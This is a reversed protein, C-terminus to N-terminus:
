TFRVVLRDEVPRYGLRPYIANSVPNDLDTFLVPIAGDDLVDRTAAATAASGYGRGRCGPPTYVPGVRASGAVVPRRAALSVVREDPGVWLRCGDGIARRAADLIDATGTGAEEAFALYWEHVLRDDDDTALRSRGPVTPPTLEDLRFLRQAMRAVVRRRGDAALLGTLREVPGSPGSLGVLDPLGGLLSALDAATRDDPDGVVLVPFLESSRVALCAGDASRAAWSAPGLTTRVTGLVTGRIPDATLLPDILAAIEVPDTTTVLAM